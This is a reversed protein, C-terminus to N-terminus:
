KQDSIRAALRTLQEAEASSGEKRLKQARTELKVVVSRRAEDTGVALHARGSVSLSALESEVSQWAARAKPSDLTADVLTLWERPLLDSRNNWTDRLFWFGGAALVLVLVLTIVKLLGRLLLSLIFLAVAAVACVLVKDSVWHRWDEGHSTSAAALNALCICCWALRISRASRRLEPVNQGFTIDPSEHITRAEFMRHM